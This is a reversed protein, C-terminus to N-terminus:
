GAPRQYDRVDVFIVGAPGPILRYGSTALCAQYAAQDEATWALSFPSPLSVLAFWRADIAATLGATGHLLTAPRGPVPYAVSDVAM